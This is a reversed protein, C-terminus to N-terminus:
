HPPSRSLTTWTSISRRKGAARFKETDAQKRAGCRLRVGGPVREFEKVIQRGTQGTSGILFVAPQHSPM